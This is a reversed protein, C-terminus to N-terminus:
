KSSLSIQSIHFGMGAETNHPGDPRHTTFIQFNEHLRLRGHHAGYSRLDNTDLSSWTSPLHRSHRYLPAHPHPPPLLPPPEQPPPLPQPELPQATCNGVGNFRGSVQSRPITGCRPRICGTHSEPYSGDRGYSGRRTGSLWTFRHMEVNEWVDVGTAGPRKPSEPHYLGARRCVWESAAAQQQVATNRHYDNGQMM